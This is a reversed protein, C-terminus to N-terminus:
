AREAVELGHDTGTDHLESTTKTNTASDCVSDSCLNDVDLSEVVARGQKHQTHNASNNSRGSVEGHSGTETERNGSSVRDEATDKTHTNTSETAATNGPNAVLIVTRDVNLIANDLNTNVSERKGRLESVHERM